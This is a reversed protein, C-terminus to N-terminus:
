TGLATIAASLEAFKKDIYLKTDAPYTIEKMSGTSAWVNNVGLLTKVQEASLQYTVPTALEYVVYGSPEISTSGTNCWTVYNSSVAIAGVSDSHHNAGDNRRRRKLLSRKKKKRQNQLM